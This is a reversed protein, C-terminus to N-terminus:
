KNFNWLLLAIVVVGFIVNFVPLTKVTDQGDKGAFRRAVMSPTWVLWIDVVLVLIFGAIGAWAGWKHDFIARAAPPWPSLDGAMMLGVMMYAVFILPVLWVPSTLFGGLFGLNREALAPVSQRLTALLALGALLTGVTWIDFPPMM